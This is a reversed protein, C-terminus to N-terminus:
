TGCHSTAVALEHAIAAPRDVVDGYRYHAVSYGAARLRADREADRAKDLPGDHWTSDVEVVHMVPEWLFDVTAIWGDPGAVPAQVTPRPLGYADVLELFLAETDSMTPQHEPGFHQLVQRALTSGRRGRRAMVALVAAEQTFTMGRRGLADNYVREMRYRHYPQRIGVDPGPDGCLDFFTRAMTTVPLGVVSTVHQPPLWRTEVLRGVSTVHDRGRPVLVEVAETSRFAYFEHLRAATRLCLVAGDGALSLAAQCQSTLDFPHDRLRDVGRGIPVLLGRRRRLNKLDAESAGAAVADATRVIGDRWAGLEAM